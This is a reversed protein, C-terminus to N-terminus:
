VYSSSHVRAGSFAKSINLSLFLAANRSAYPMLQRQLPISHVVFAAYICYYIASAFPFSHFLLFNIVKLFNSVLNSYEFSMLIKLSTFSKFDLLIELFNSFIHYKM